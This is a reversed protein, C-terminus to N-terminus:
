HDSGPTDNQPSVKSASATNIQKMGTVSAVMNALARRPMPQAAM